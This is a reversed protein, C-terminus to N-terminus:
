PCCFEPTAPPLGLFLPADPASRQSRSDSVYSPNNRTSLLDPRRRQQPIANPGCATCNPDTCEADGNDQTLTPRRQTSPRQKSSVSATRSPKQRPSSENSHQRQEGGTPRRPKPAPSQSVAPATTAAAVPPSRSTASPASDASSKSAATFSSYGSDSRVDINTPMAPAKETKLDKSRKTSVNAQAMPSSKRPTDERIVAHEGSADSEYDSCHAQYDQAAPAM